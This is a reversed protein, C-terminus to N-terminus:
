KKKIKINKRIAESIQRYTHKRNLFNIYDHLDKLNDIKLKEYVTNLLELLQDSIEAFIREDIGEFREDRKRREDELYGDIITKKFEDLDEYDCMIGINKFRLDDSEEPNTSIDIVIREPSNKDHTIKM